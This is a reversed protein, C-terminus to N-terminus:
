TEPGCPSPVTMTTTWSTQNIGLDPGLQQRVAVLAALGSALSSASRAREARALANLAEQLPTRHWRLWPV